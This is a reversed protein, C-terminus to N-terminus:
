FKFGVEIGGFDRGQNPMEFGASSFHQYKFGMTVDNRQDRLGVFLDEKFQFHGGLFSDPTSILSPGTAIRFLLGNEVQVGVQDAIYGSSKRGDGRDTQVWGGGEIQNYFNPVLDYFFRDLPTRVGAQGFKVNAPSPNANGFMGLSADIYVDDADAGKNFILLLTFLVCILIMLRITVWKGM